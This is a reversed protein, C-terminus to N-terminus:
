SISFAPMTGVRLAKAPGQGLDKGQMLRGACLLHVFLSRDKWGQRSPTLILFFPGAGHETALTVPHLAASGETHTDAGGVGEGRPAETEGGTFHVPSQSGETM